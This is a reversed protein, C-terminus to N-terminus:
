QEGSPGGDAGLYIYTKMGRDLIVQSPERWRLAFTHSALRGGRDLYAELRQQLEQLGAPLLYLFVVTADDLSVDQVRGCTVSCRERTSPALQDLRAEARAAVTPDYEIGVCRAAGREAAAALVRGDGCGLDVVHDTPGLQLEDLVREVVADPTPNFPALYDPHGKGYGTADASM